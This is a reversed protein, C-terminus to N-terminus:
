KEFVAPMWLHDVALSFVCVEWGELFARTKKGCSEFSDGVRALGVVKPSVVSDGVGTEVGRCRSGRSELSVRSARGRMEGGGRSLCVTGTGFSFTGM